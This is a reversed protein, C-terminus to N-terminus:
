CHVSNDAKWYVWLYGMMMVMTAVTLVAMTGVWLWAMSEERTM